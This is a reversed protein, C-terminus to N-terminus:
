GATQQSEFEQGDPTPRRRTDVAEVVGVPQPNEVRAEIRAILRKRRTPGQQAMQYLVRRLFHLDFNIEQASALVVLIAQAAHRAEDFPNREPPGSLRTASTRQWRRETM